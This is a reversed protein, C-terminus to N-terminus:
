VRFNDTKKNILKICIELRCPVSMEYFVKRPKQFFKSQTVPSVEFLDRCPQEANLEITTDLRKCWHLHFYAILTTSELPLTSGMPFANPPLQGDFKGAWTLQPKYLVSSHGMLCFLICLLSLLKTRTLDKLIHQILSVVSGRVRRTSYQGRTDHWRSLWPVFSSVNCQNGVGLQM